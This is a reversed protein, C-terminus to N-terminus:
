RPHLEREAHYLYSFPSDRLERRRENRAGVLNRGINILGSIAGGVAIPVSLTAGILFSALTKSSPQILASLSGATTAIRADNLQATLDGLGIEISEGFQTLVRTASRHDPAKSLQEYFDDM